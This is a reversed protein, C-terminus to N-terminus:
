ECERDPGDIWVFRRFRYPKNPFSKECYGSIEFGWDGIEDEMGYEDWPGLIVRGNPKVYDTVLRELLRKQISASFDPLIMSYVYDFRVPPQWYLANGQYIRERWDPLRERAFRALGSSIELGHLEVQVDTGVLWQGLSEILHGNACGVDISTGSSDIAELIMMRVSRYWSPSGGHGSQGRPNDRSLYLTESAASMLDFYVKESISEAELEQRMRDGYENLNEDSRM